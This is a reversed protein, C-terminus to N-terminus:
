TNGSYALVKVLIALIDSFLMTKLDRNITLYM